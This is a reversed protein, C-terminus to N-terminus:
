ADTVIRSLGPCALVSNVSRGQRPAVLRVVCLRVNKLSTKKGKM